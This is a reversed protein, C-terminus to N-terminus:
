RSRESLCQLSRKWIEEFPGFGLWLGCDKDEEHELRDKKKKIESKRTKLKVLHEEM